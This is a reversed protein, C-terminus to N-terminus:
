TGLVDDSFLLREGRVGFARKPRESGTQAGLCLKMEM